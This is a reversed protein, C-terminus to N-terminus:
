GPGAPGDRDEYLVYAISKGEDDWTPMLLMTVLGPTLNVVAEDTGLMAEIFTGREHDVVTM